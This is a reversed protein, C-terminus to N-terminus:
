NKTVIVNGNEAALMISHIGSGLKATGQRKEESENVPASIKWDINGKIKGYNTSADLTIPQDQLINWVIDGSSSEIISSGTLFSDTLMVDGGHTQAFLIGTYANVTIDGNSTQLKASAHINDLGISGKGVDVKVVAQKPVSIHLRGTIRTMDNLEFGSDILDLYVKNGIQKLSFQEDVKNKLQKDNRVNASLKGEIKVKQEDTGTIFVDESPLSIVVEEITSSLALEEQMNYTSTQFSFGLEDMAAKGFSFVLSAGGILILLIISIWHIGLKQDKRFFHLILIEVGLLICIIPWSYVLVKAFPISLFSQVLWLLGIVILLIGATISGIKWNRM